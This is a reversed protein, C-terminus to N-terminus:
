FCPILKEHLAAPPEEDWLSLIYGGGGSGTPKVALAGQDQLWQMHKEAAGETLGWQHFCSAAQDIGEALMEINNPDNSSLAEICAKVSRGMERDIKEGLHSHASLLNKVKTVCDVTVGRKDSYSIYLKPQWVPTFDTREQGRTFILPKTSLAVAIDVGSSEGHFLNELQRSFEYVEQTEVYGLSQFWKTMAVCFAASAGMGAGVPISNKLCIDGTLSSRSIKKLECVRELVGWFLMHLEQGYPGTLELKLDGQGPRYFLDLQRSLLPFVLAPCGRLVSHEGSMIWKGCTKTEFGKSEFILM